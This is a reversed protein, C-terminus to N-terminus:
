GIPSLVLVKDRITVNASLPTLPLRLRAAPFMWAPYMSPRRDIHKSDLGAATNDSRRRM